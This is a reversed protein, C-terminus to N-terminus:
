LLLKRLRPLLVFLVLVSTGDEVSEVVLAVDLLVCGAVDSHGLALAVHRVDDAVLLHM